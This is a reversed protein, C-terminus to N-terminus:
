KYAIIGNKESLELFHITDILVTKENVIIRDSLDSVIEDLSKAEKLLNLIIFGTKNMSYHDGTEICFAYFKDTAENHKLKVQENLIYRKMERELM